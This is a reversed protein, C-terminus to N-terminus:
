FKFRFGTYVGIYFPKYDVSSDTYTGLQYKFLPEINFLLKKSFKYNIGLGINTSFSTKSLNNSTGLTEKYSGERVYVENNNLLLTSFGGILNIGLKSKNSLVAYQLELPIELYGIEQTLEANGSTSKPSINEFPTDGSPQTYTGKDAVTVVTQKGGYNISKLAVAVPASVVEVDGTAYRLNVANVGSRIKVKNSIAYSVQIGYSFTLDSKQPNDAFSPDISSGNSLSSYYIPAFNPTVEWNKNDKSQQLVKEENEQIEEIADFISTKKATEQHAVITEQVSDKSINQISKENIVEKNSQEVVPNDFSKQVPNTFNKENKAVVQNTNKIIQKTTKDTTIQASKNKLSNTTNSTAVSPTKQTQLIKNGKSNANEQSNSTDLITNADQGQVVADENIPEQTNKLPTNEQTTVENKQIKESLLFKGGLTFLLLLLAAVGATKFWFPIVKRESKEKNLKAKISSWVEPPPSQEFDSFREKFFSDINKNKKM